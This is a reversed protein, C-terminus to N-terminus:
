QRVQAGAVTHEAKVDLPLKRSKAFKASACLAFSRPAPLSECKGNPVVLTVCCGGITSNDNTKYTTKDPISSEDLTSAVKHYQRWYAEPRNNFSVAINAPAACITKAAQATRLASASIEVDAYPNCTANTVSDCCTGFPLEKGLLDSM